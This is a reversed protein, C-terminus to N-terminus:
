NESWNNFYWDSRGPVSTWLYYSVKKSHDIGDVARLNNVPYTYYFPLKLASIYNVGDYDYDGRDTTVYVNTRVSELIGAFRKSDNILANPMTNPYVGFMVKYEEISKVLSNLGYKVASLQSPKLPTATNLFLIFIGLLIFLILIAIRLIYKNKMM